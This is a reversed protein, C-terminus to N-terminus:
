VHATENKLADEAKKWNCIKRSYPSANHIRRPMPPALLDGLQRKNSFKGCWELSDQPSLMPKTM